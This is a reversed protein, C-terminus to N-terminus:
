GANYDSLVIGENLDVDSALLTVTSIFPYAMDKDAMLWIYELRSQCDKKAAIKRAEVESTAAIVHGRFEDYDIEDRPDNREILYLNM